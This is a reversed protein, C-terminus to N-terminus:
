QTSTQQKLREYVFDALARVRASHRLDPHTL